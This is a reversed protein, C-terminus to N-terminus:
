VQEPGVWGGKSHTGFDNEPTFRDVLWTLWDCADPELTLFSHRQVEIGGIRRWSTSLAIKGKVKVPPYSRVHRTFHAVM